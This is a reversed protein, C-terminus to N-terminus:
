VYNNHLCCVGSLCFRAVHQQPHRQKVLPVSEFDAGACSWLYLCNCHSWPKCLTAFQVAWGAEHLAVAQCSAGLCGHQASKSHDGTIALM